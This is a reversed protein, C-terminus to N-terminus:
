GLAVPRGPKIALRWFHLSGAAEVAAKVHDEDGTSMGGSTVIADHDAAARELADRIAELRDPLIGLDSVAAGTVRLLAALTYRNSDYIAGPALAQGPEVLEDGTSFLAVRLRRRVAIQRLGLSAALGVDQPRMRHGAALVVAGATVDEGAARFNAGRKIGPRIVVTEGEVRCDEQMMVTDPGPPMLAGTFIRVAEGRAPCHPTPHGAAARGVVRLRTEADRALDDFYVAYGDVAANAHAPVAIPAVLPAMLIRGLADGLGVTESDTVPALRDELRARAEAITMLRGGFAFCDDSLQAM